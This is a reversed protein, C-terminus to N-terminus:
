RIRAQRREWDALCDADCWRRLLDTQPEECFLCFGRPEPGPKENARRKALADALHLEALDNAADIIDTM